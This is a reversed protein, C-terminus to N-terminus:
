HEIQITDLLAAVYADIAKVEPRFPQAAEPGEAIAVRSGLGAGLEDWVVLMEGDPSRGDALEEATFPVAVRLRAGEYCPHSRSLTVTGIIEAIRM